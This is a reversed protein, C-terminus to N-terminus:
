FDYRPKRRLVDITDEVTEQEDKIYGFFESTRNKDALVKYVPKIIAKLHGHYFLEVEEKRDLARVIEKSKTRFDIISAKM